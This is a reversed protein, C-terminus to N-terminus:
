LPRSMGPRVHTVLAARGSNGTSCCSESIITASGPATGISTSTGKSGATSPSFSIPFKALQVTLLQLGPHPTSASLSSSVENNQCHTSGSAYGAFPVSFTNFILHVM